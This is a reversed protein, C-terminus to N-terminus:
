RVIRGSRNGASWFGGGGGGERGGIEGGPDAGEGIGGGDVMYRRRDGEGAGLGAAGAV